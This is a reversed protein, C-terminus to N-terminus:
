RNDTTSAGILEDLRDLVAIDVQEDFKRAFPQPASLLEGLDASVFTNPRDVPGSGVFRVLHTWENKVRLHPANALITHFYSEDPGFRWRYYQRLARSHEYTDFLHTVARRNAAFWQSGAYCRLGDHFPLLYQDIFPGRLKLQRWTPRSRRSFMGWWLAVSLFRQPYDMQESRLGGPDVLVLNMHADYPSNLFTDRIVTASKIPYDVGSLLVFWEPAAPTDFLARLGAVTARVLSFNGWQTRLHPEIVEVSDPLRRRDLASRGFDHHCVIRADPFLGALRCTLRVTQYPKHHSLVVFGLPDVPSRRGTM